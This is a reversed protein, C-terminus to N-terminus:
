LNIYRNLVISSNATLLSPPGHYSVKLQFYCDICLTSLFDRSSQPIKESSVPIEQEMWITNWPLMRLLDNVIADDIWLTLQSNNDARDNISLNSHDDLEVRLVSTSLADVITRNDDDSIIVSRTHVHNDCVEILHKMM